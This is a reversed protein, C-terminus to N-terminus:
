ERSKHGPNSERSDQSSSHPRFCGFAKEWTGLLPLKALRLNPITEYSDSPEEQADEPTSAAPEVADSNLISTHLMTSSHDLEIEQSKLWGISSGPSSQRSGPIRSPSSRDEGQWEINLEVAATDVPALQGQVWARLLYWKTRLWPANPLSELRSYRSTMHTVNVNLLAYTLAMEVDIMLADPRAQFFVEIPAESELHSSYKSLEFIGGHFYQAVTANLLPSQWWKGLWKEVFEVTWQDSVIWQTGRSMSSYSIPAPCQHTDDWARSRLPSENKNNVLKVAKTGVADQPSKKHAPAAISSAGFVLSLLYYSGVVILM